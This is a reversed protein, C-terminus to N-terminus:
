FKRSVSFQGSYSTSTPLLGSGVFGDLRYIRGAGLEWTLDLGTIPTWVLNAAARGVQAKGSGSGETIRLDVFTAFANSRWRESWGHSYALAATWGRMTELLAVPANRSFTFNLLGGPQAIGLYGPATDAYAAQAIFYDDTGISAIQRQVGFMVAYGYRSRRDPSEFRLQRLAGGLHLTTSDSEYQWRAIGDPFSVGGYGNNVLRRATPDEASLILTSKESTRLALSTLFTSASPATARFGFEDGAWFDFHSGKVGLTVPGLSMWITNASGSSTGASNSWDFELSRGSLKEEV